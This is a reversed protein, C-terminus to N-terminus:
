QFVDNIMNIVAQEFDILISKPNLVIKKEAANDVLSRFLYDYGAQSKDECCAYVVPKISYEDFVHIYYAQTFLAPSTRFTGDVNWHHNESLIKLAPESALTIVKNPTPSNCFIFPQNTNNFHMDCVIEIFSFSTSIRLYYQNVLLIYLQNGHTFCQYLLQLSM